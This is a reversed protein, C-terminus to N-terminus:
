ANEKNQTNAADFLSQGLSCKPTKQCVKCTYLHGHWARWKVNSIHQLSEVDQPFPRVYNPHNHPLM